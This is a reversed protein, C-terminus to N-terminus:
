AACTQGECERACHSDLRKHRDFPGMGGLNFRKSQGASAAPRLIQAHQERTIRALLPVGMGIKAFHRAEPQRAVGHKALQRRHNLLDRRLKAGPLKRGRFERALEHRPQLEHQVLEVNMMLDLIQMIERDEAGGIRPQRAAKVHQFAVM